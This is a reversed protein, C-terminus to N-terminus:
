EHNAELVTPAEDVMYFIEYGMLKSYQTRHDGGYKPQFMMPDYGSEPLLKDADILRGHPPVKVLPCDEQRQEALEYTYARDLLRMCQFTHLGDVRLPCVACNKPMEMGKILLDAM